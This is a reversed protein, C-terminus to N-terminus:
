QTRLVHEIIVFLFYVCLLMFGENRSIDNKSRTFYFFLGLGFALLLFTTFFNNVTLVEGTNMLTFLGFLFTNAAGSGIYDGFAVDKKGSIVSRIALSLEPLNTGLSLFILSIYFPSVTLLKAFFLTYDVIVHSAVFVIAVGLLVKLIDSFSYSRIHLVESHQTDFIGKKRQMVFFLVCYLLILIFGEANTVKKDMVFFAPSLIVVFAFLLNKTELESHLKVGNGLIALIPIALLFLVPIGGILNGVFIEPNNEALATMGVGFEPTSTLMGLIFFSFAFSSVKLRKSFRDASAVILGAGFWIAVFALVYLTIHLAIM